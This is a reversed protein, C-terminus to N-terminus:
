PCVAADVEVVRRDELRVATLSRGWVCGTDLSWHDDDIRLGLAAWHGCIVTDGEALTGRATRRLAWWPAAGPPTDELRGAHGAMGGDQGVCRIRTLIAAAAVAQEADPADDRWRDAARLGRLLASPDPGRLTSQAAAAAREAQALSWTPWLGAHVMVFGGDRVLLPQVRLWGLLEDRDGAHLVDDLTDRRGAAAIGEARALLHLDHNGLVAVVSAAHDVCFRLVERSAPGRNVLDGALWLRDRGPDFDIAVLLRRLADWCGQVDGIAWTAM